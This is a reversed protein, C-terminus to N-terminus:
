RFAPCDSYTRVQLSRAKFTTFRVKDRFHKRFNRPLVTADRLGQTIITNSRNSAIQASSWEQYKEIFNRSLNGKTIGWATILTSGNYGRLNIGRLNAKIPGSRYTWIQDICVPWEGEIGDSPNGWIVSDGLESSGFIRLNSAHRGVGQLPILSVVHKWVDSYRVDSGYYSLSRTSFRRIGNAVTYLQTVDKIEKKMFFPRVPAGLYFDQGCSERFPGDVFSKAENISFGCFQLNKIVNEADMAPCCIDDGFVGVCLPMKKNNLYGCSILTVALFILTELEFTYGNGMASFKSLRYTVVDDKEPGKLDIFSSRYKSLWDFWGKPLLIKVLWYSITDSASKLDITAIKNTQSGFKALLGNKEAQHDLDLGFKKLRKRILNGLALQMLADYDEPKQIPRDEKFTKKVFDLEGVCKVEPEFARFEPRLNLVRHLADVGMPSVFRMQELKDFVSCYKSPCSTTAGPGLRVHESVQTVSPSPGLINQILRKVAWLFRGEDVSISNVLKENTKKCQREAQLWNKMAELKTDIGLDLGEYKRLISVAAYDRMFYDSNNQYLDSNPDVTASLAKLWGDNTDETVFELLSQSLPTDLAQWMKIAITKAVQTGNNVKTGNISGIVGIARLHNHLIHQFRTKPKGGVFSHQITSLDRKDRSAAVIFFDLAENSYKVDNTQQLSIKRCCNRWYPNFSYFTNAIDKVSSFM